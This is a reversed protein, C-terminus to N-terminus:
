LPIPCLVAGLLSLVINISSQSIQQDSKMQYPKLFLIVSNYCKKCIFPDFPAFLSQFCSLVFIKLSECSQCDLPRPNLDGYSWM